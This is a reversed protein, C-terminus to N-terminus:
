REAGGLLRAMIGAMRHWEDGFHGVEVLDM